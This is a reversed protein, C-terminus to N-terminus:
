YVAGRKTCNVQVAVGSNECSTNDSDIPQKFRDECDVDGASESLVGTKGYPEYMVARSMQGRKQIKTELDKHRVENILSLRRLWSEKRIVSTKCSNGRGPSPQRRRQIDRYM